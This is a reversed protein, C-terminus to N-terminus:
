LRPFVGLVVYAYFIVFLAIVFVYACPYTEVPFRESLTESKGIWYALLASEATFLFAIKTDAFQLFAMNRTLESQLFSLDTHKM